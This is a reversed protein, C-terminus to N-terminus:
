AIDGNVVKDADVGAWSGVPGGWQRCPWPGLGRRPTRLRWRESGSLEGANGKVTVRVSRSKRRPRNERAADSYVKEKEKEKGM